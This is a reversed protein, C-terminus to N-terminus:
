RSVPRSGQGIWVDGFNIGSARTLVSCKQMSLDPPSVDMLQREIEKLKKYAEPSFQIGNQSCIYEALAWRLYEIYARDYVTTLDTTLIVDTLSFKGIINLPYIRDPLPYLYIDMGDKSRNTTYTLPLTYIQEARISSFYNRRSIKNMAYRVNSYNFTMSEVYVCNEITYKEQGVVTSLTKDYQWFPILVTDVSKYDLLANLLFLGDTIQQGGVTQFGRSVIGSLYYSQSILEHATYPM